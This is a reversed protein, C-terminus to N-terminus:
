RILQEAENLHIRAIVWDFWFGEWRPLNSVGRRFTEDIVFRPEALEAVAQDTQGLRAHAMAIILQVSIVRSQLGLDYERSRKGWEISLEYDGSRYAMLSLTYARWAAMTLDIWAVKTRDVEGGQPLSKESVEIYRGLARMLDASAPKLLCAKVVREATIANDTGAYRAILSERYREYEATKGLEVLLPAYRLEDLTTDESVAQNIQVLVAFRDAAKQWRAESAHWDGISRYMVANDVSAKPSSIKALLADAEPLRNQGFLTMAELLRQRDEAIQRLQNLKDAQQQLGVKQLEAVDAKRRAEREKLLLWTSVVSCAVLSIAVASGAAFTARNRRVLKQLRYRRSPPGAVVPENDLYRNVDLALGNATEYRRGRDKELAKMVIWDLDRSLISKLRAPEAGRHAAIEALEEAPLNQIKKSPSPPERDRLTRRMEDLGAAMLEKQDFPTKGTLLEYLLVGLSYIDSRTDVDLGSFQAQEPSMYAPTGIFHENPTFLTQDTLRGEVAKAIGFDIVKPVAVKDHLTVLINSPKIDRHIIGKQHAHQIAHCVQVFLDLREPITLENEDCYTTLKVGHVLEMVFYPRGSDTVGADLVRAISPHDMLALAQQEAEFRAIVSKTDMGLKIIKLAVRRRVPKEQEAMYVVGCGGEGLRQLLKYPGIGTELVSVDMEELAASLGVVGESPVAAAGTQTFFLEAEAQAALSEEVQARLMADGECARDLFAARAAPDAVELAAHFVQEERQLSSEM